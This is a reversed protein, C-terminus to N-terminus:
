GPRLRLGRGGAGARPVAGGPGVRGDRRGSGGLGAADVVVVSGVKQDRMRAAVEGLLVAPINALMMGLTTGAVVPKVLGPGLAPVMLIVLVVWYLPLAARVPANEEPIEPPEERLRLTALVCPHDSGRLAKFFDELTAQM